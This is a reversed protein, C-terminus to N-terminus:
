FNFAFKGIKAQRLLTKKVKEEYNVLFLENDRWVNLFDERVSYYHTRKIRSLITYDDKFPLNIELDKM